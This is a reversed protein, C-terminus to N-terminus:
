KGNSGIIHEHVVDVIRKVNNSLVKIHEASKLVSDALKIVQQKLNAQSKLAENLQEQLKYVRQRLMIIDVILLAIVLVMIWILNEM